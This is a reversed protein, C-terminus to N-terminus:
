KESPYYANNMGTASGGITHLPAVNGNANSAFTYLTGGNTFDAVLIHGKADVGTSSVDNLGTKSGSITQVPAVNGSAGAAFVFVSTNYHNGVVIRGDNELSVNFAETIGTNSGGIVASPAVNGNANNPFEVIPETSDNYNAVYLNGRTDVAM